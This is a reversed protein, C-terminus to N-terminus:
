CMQRKAYERTNAKRGRARLGRLTHLRLPKLSQWLQHRQVQLGALAQDGGQKVGHLSLLCSDTVVPVIGTIEASVCLCM